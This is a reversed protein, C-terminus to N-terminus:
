RQSPSTAKPVPLPAIRPATAPPVRTPAPPIPRMLTRSYILLPLVVVLPILAMMFAFPRQKTQRALAERQLQLLECQADRIETLLQRISDSDGMGQKESPDIMRPSEYPNVNM